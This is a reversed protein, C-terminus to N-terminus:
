NPANKRMDYDYIIEEIKKLNWKISDSKKRLQGNRLSFKLFEYYISEVFKHIEELNIKDNNIACMVAQRGLEGTLDCIGMLYDSSNVNLKEKGLLKKNKIFSYFEMAEVYEQNADSHTGEHPLDPHKKAIKELIAKEKQALKLYKSVDTKRHISYILLKSNKLVIRSQKILEERLNDYDEIEKRINDFM